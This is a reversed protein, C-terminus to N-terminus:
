SMISGCRRKIRCRILDTLILLVLRTMFLDTVVEALLSLQPRNQAFPRSLAYRRTSFSPILKAGCAADMRVYKPISVFFPESWARARSM